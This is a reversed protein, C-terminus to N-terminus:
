FLITPDSDLAPDNLNYLDRDTGLLSNLELKANITKLVVSRFIKNKYIIDM